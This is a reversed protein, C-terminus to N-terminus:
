ENRWVERAVQSVRSIMENRARLMAEAPPNGLTRQAPGDGKPYFFWGKPRNGHGKGYTGHAPPVYGLGENNWEPNNIGTGFEIFGVAEGYAIVVARNGSQSSTVAVDNEGDYQANEFGVQATDVGIEVLKRIFEHLKETFDKKYAEIDKIAKEVTSKDYPNIKITM